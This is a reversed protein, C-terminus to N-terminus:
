ILSPQTGGMQSGSTNTVLSTSTLHDQHVCRLNSGMGQAM